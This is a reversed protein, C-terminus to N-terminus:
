FVDESDVTVVDDKFEVTFPIMSKMQRVADDNWQITVPTIEEMVHKTYELERKCIREVDTQIRKVRMSRSQNIMDHKDTVYRQVKNFREHLGKLM